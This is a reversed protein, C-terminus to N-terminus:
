RPSESSYWSDLLDLLDDGLSELAARTSRSDTDAQLEGVDEVFSQVDARLASLSQSSEPPSAASPAGVVQGLLTHITAAMPVALLAGPFGLLTTFVLLSFVVVLPSVGVGGGLVRPALLYNETAQIISTLVLIWPAKSPDTALATLLAPIAGLAPGLTPVMEALGAIMGLLLGYPLGIVQYGVVSMMAVALVLMSQARVYGGVKSEIEGVLSRLTFSDGYSMRDAISGVLWDSEVTWYYAFLLFLFVAVPGRGLRSVALVSRSVWRLSRSTLWGSPMSIEIEQPLREGLTAIFQNSSELLSERLGGYLEPLDSAVAGAQDVIVPAIWTLLGVAALLLLMYIISASVTKPLGCRRLWDVGPKVATGLVLALLVVAIESLAGIALRFALAVLVVLTTAIAWRAPTWDGIWDTTTENV